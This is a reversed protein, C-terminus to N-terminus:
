IPFPQKALCRNPTGPMSIDIGNKRSKMSKLIVNCCGMRVALGRKLGTLSVSFFTAGKPMEPWSIGRFNYSIIIEGAWAEGSPYTVIDKRGLQTYRDVHSGPDFQIGAHGTNGMAAASQLCLSYLAIDTKVYASCGGM